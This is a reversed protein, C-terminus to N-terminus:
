RPLFVDPVVRYIETVAQDEVIGDVGAPLKRGTRGRPVYRIIETGFGVPCLCPIYFDGLFLGSLTKVFSKLSQPPNIVKLLYIDKKLPIVEFQFIIYKISNVKEIGGFPHRLEEIIDQREIYRALLRKPQIELVDFGINIDDSYPVNNFYKCISEFLLGSKFNFWIQRNQIMKTEKKFLM